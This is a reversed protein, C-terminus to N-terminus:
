SEAKYLDAQKALVRYEAETIEQAWEPAVPAKCNSSTNPRPPPEVPLSAIVSGNDLLKAVGKHFARDAFVTGDIGLAKELAWQWIDILEEVYELEAALAKGAKTARNPKICWCDHDGLKKSRNTIIASFGPHKMVAQAADTHTRYFLARAKHGGGTIAGDAGYKDFWIERKARMADDRALKFLSAAEACHSAPLLYYKRACYSIHPM